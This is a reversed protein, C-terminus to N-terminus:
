LLVLTADNDVDGNKVVGCHGHDTYECRCVDTFMLLDPAPDRIAGSPRRAARSRSPRTPRLKRAPASRSSCSGMTRAPKAAPPTKTSPFALYFLRRFGSPM